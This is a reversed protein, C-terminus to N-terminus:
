TYTFSLIIIIFSLRVIDSLPDKHNNYNSSLENLKGNALKLPDGSRKLSAFSEIVCPVCPLHPPESVIYQMNRTSVTVFQDDEDADKVPM